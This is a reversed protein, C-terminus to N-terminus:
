SLCFVKTWWNYCQFFMLLILYVCKSSPKSCLIPVLILWVVFRPPSHHCHHWGHVTTVREGPSLSIVLNGKHLSWLARPTLYATLAAWASQFHRTEGVKERSRTCSAAQSNSRPRRGDVDSASLDGCIRQASSGNCPFYVRSEKSPLPM